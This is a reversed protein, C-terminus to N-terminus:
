TCLISVPTKINRIKKTELRRINKCTKCKAGDPRNKNCKYISWNIPNIQKYTNCVICRKFLLGNITKLNDCNHVFHHEEATLLQLNEIRNDDKKRNIHHIEYGNPIKGNIREWVLRHEFIQPEGKPRYVIYGSKTKHGTGNKRM